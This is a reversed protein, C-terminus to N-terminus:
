FIHGTILIPMNRFVIRVKPDTIKTAALKQELIKLKENAGAKRDAAAKKEEDERRQRAREVAASMEENQARRRNRWLEDDEGGKISIITM